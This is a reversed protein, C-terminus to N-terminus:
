FLVDFVYNVTRTHWWSCGTDVALAAIYSKPIILGDGSFGKIRRVVAVGYGVEVGRQIDDKKAPKWDQGGERLGRGLTGLWQEIDQSQYFV